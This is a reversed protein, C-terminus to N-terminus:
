RRPEPAPTPAPAPPCHTSFSGDPQRCAVITDFYQAAVKVGVTGDPLRIIEPAEPQVRRVAAAAGPGPTASEVAGPLDIRQAARAHLTTSARGPDPATVDNRASCGVLLLGAAAVALVAHQLRITM